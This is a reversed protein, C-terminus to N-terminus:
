GEKPAQMRRVHSNFNLRGAVFGQPCEFAMTSKIGNNFWKMGKKKGILGKSLNRKMQETWVRERMKKRFSEPRKRGKMWTNKGKAIQSMLKRTEESHPGKRISGGDGGQSINYGIEKDTARYYYIWFIELLNLHACDVATDVLEVSFCEKGYIKVARKLHVGSGLYKETFAGKHKGVYIKGNILNTTKYIYGFM